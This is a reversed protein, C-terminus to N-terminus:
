RAGGGERRDAHNRLLLAPRFNRRHLHDDSAGPVRLLLGQAFEEQGLDGFIFSSGYYAFDLFWNVAAGLRQFIYRGTEWRMVLFAFAIQLGLGWAVTKYRIARRDTSFIYALALMTLMGLIGVFRHM